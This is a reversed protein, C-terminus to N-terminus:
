SVCTVGIFNHEVRNAEIAGILGVKGENIIYAPIDQMYASMCGKRQFNERFVGSSILFDTLHSVIGGAIYVGSRAGLTLALDGAVRGLVGCFFEVTKVCEDDTYSTGRSVIENNELYKNQSGNVVCISEYILKIGKGSLLHEASIPNHQDSIYNFMEQEFPSLAGWTVHGGQGQIPLWNNDHSFLGSVGLGTGPGIIAKAAAADSNKNGGVQILQEGRLTPVAISIATFDNIVKLSDFAFQRKVEKVSFEWSLNTFSVCDDTVYTAVALVAVKPLAISLSSFYNSMMEQLTSYDACRFAKFERIGEGDFIAFRGNTGGIDAILCPPPSYLSNM